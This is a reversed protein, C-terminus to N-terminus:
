GPPLKRTSIRSPLLDTYALIGKGRRKLDAIEDGGRELTGRAAEVIERHQRELERVAAEGGLPELEGRELLPRATSFWRDFADAYRTLRDVTTGAEAPRLAREALELLDSITPGSM